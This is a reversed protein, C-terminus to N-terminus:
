LRFNFVVGAHAGLASSYGALVGYRRLRGLSWVAALKNEFYNGYVGSVNLRGLQTGGSVARYNGIAGKIWFYCDGSDGTFYGFEAAAKVGKSGYHLAVGADRHSVLDPREVTSRFIRYSGGLDYARGRTQVAVSSRDSPAFSLSSGFAASSGAALALQGQGAEGISAVQASLAACLLAVLLVSRLVHKM